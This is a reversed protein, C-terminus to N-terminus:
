TVKIWKRDISSGPNPAGFGANIAAHAEALLWSGTPLSFIGSSSFMPQGQSSGINHLLTGTVVGNDSVSRFLANAGGLAPAELATPGQVQTSYSIIGGGDATANATATGTGWTTFAQITSPAYNSLLIVSTTPMSTITNPNTGSSSQLYVTDTAWGSFILSGTGSYSSSIQITAGPLYWGSGFTNVEAQGGNVALHFHPTSFSETYSRVKLTSIILHKGSLTFAM